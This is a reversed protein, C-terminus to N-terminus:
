QASIQWSRCRSKGLNPRFKGLNPRSKGLNPRSKGLNPQSKGLNPQSKGLHASIKASISWSKRLDASTQRSRCPWFDVVYLGSCSSERVLWRVLHGETIPWSHTTKTVLWPAWFQLCVSKTIDDQGLRNWGMSFWGHILLRCFHFEVSKTFIQLSKASIDRSWGVNGSILRFKRLDASTQRTRGLDFILWPNYGMLFWGCFWFHFEVLILRWPTLILCFDVVSQFEDFILWPHYLSVWWCDIMSCCFDIKKWFFDHDLDFKIILKQM